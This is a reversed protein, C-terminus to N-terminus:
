SIKPSAGEQNKWFIGAVPAPVHQKQYLMWSNSPNGPVRAICRQCNQRAHRRPWNTLRKPQALDFAAHAQM